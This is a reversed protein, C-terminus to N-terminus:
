QAPLRASRRMSGSPWRWSSIRIGRRHVVGAGNLIVPFKADVAPARRPSPRGRRRRASSSSSRPLEIDIVQTWYDRPMNIQAPASGRWAKLIVRNLVEAM